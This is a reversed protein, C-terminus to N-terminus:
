QVSVQDPPFVLPEIEVAKCSQNSRQGCRLPMQSEIKFCGMCVTMRVRCGENASVKQLWLRRRGYGNSGGADISPARSGLLRSTYEADCSLVPVFFALPVGPMNSKVAPM